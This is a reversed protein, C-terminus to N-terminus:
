NKKINLYNIAKCNKCVIAITGDECDRIIFNELKKNKDLDEVNGCKCLIKM